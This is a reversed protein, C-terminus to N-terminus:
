VLNPTMKAKNATVRAVIANAYLPNVRFRQWWVRGWALAAM